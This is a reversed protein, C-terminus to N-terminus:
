YYFILYRPLFVKGGMDLERVRKNQTKNQTNNNNNDNNTPSPGESVKVPTQPPAGVGAGDLRRVWASEGPLPVCYLVRREWIKREPPQPQQYQNNHGQGMAAVDDAPGLDETFKTTKWKGGTTNDRYAGVYYEPNYMDQVMCRFRVLANPKVAEVGVANIEPIQRSPSPTPHLLFSLPHPALSLFFSVCCCFFYIIGFIQPRPPPFREFM